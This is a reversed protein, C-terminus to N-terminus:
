KKYVKKIKYTMELNHIDENNVTEGLNILFFKPEQRKRSIWGIELDKVEYYAQKCKIDIVIIARKNADSLVRGFVYVQRPLFKNDKYDIAGSYLKAVDEGSLVKMEIDFEEPIVKTEMGGWLTWAKAKTVMCVMLIAVGVFIVFFRM